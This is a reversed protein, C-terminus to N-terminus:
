MLLGNTFFCSSHSFRLRAPTKLALVQLVGSFPKVVRNKRSQRACYPPPRHLNISIANRIIEAWKCASKAKEGKGGFFAFGGNVPRKRLTIVPTSFIGSFRM